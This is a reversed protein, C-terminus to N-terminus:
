QQRKHRPEGGAGNLVIVCDAVLVGFTYWCYVGLRGNVTSRFWKIRPHEHGLDTRQQGTFVLNPTLYGRLEQVPRRGVPVSGDTAAAGRM